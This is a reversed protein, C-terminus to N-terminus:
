LEALWITIPIFKSWRLSALPLSVPFGRGVQTQALACKYLPLSPHVRGGLPIKDVEYVDIGRIRIDDNSIGIFVVLSLM